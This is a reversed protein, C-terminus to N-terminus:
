HIIPHGQPCRCTALLKLKGKLVEETFDAGSAKEGGGGGGMDMADMTVTSKRKGSYSSVPITILSYDYVHIAVGDGQWVCSM